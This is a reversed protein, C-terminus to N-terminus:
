PAVLEVGALGVVDGRRRQYSVRIKLCKIETKLSLKLAANSDRLQLMWNETCSLASKYQAVNM